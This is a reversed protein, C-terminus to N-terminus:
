LQRDVCKSSGNCNISFLKQESDYRMSSLDLSKCLVQDERFVEVGESFKAVIVGHLVDISYGNGLKGNIYALTQEMSIDQALLRPSTLNLTVWILLFRIPYRTM